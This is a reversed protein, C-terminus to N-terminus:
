RSGTRLFWWGLLALLLAIGVVILLPHEQVLDGFNGRGQAIVWLGPQM